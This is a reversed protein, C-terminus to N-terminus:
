SSGCCSVSLLVFLMGIGAGDEDEFFAGYGVFELATDADVLNDALVSERDDLGSCWM